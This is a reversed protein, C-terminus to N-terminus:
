RRGPDKTPSWFQHSVQRGVLFLAVGTAHRIPRMLTHFWWRLAPGHHGAPLPMTWPATRPAWLHAAETRRPMARQSGGSSDNFQM